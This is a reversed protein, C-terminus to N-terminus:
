PNFPVITLTGLGNQMTVSATMNFLPFAGSVNGGRTYSAGVTYIGTAPVTWVWQRAIMTQRNTTISVQSEGALPILATIAVVPSTGQVAIGFNEIGCAASSNGGFVGSVSILVRQGATFSLSPIALTGTAAGPFTGNTTPLFRVTTGPTTGNPTADLVASIIGSTQAVTGLATPGTAGTSGQPGQPGTPGAPGPVTSDAGAPGTPGAPGTAGAPGAPGVAGNTGNAGAPGAPGIAGQPGQPGTPGTAGAPGAPGPVTSDAGAPGTPGAPGVAGDAGNTGNAGAPGAPGTPGTPGTAGTAGQVGTTILAAAFSATAHNTGGNHEYGAVEVYDGVELHLLWSGNVTTGILDEPSTPVMMSEGGSVPSGNKHVRVGALNLLGPAFTLSANITYQGATSATFRTPAAGSFLPAGGMNFDAADFAMVTWISDPVDTGAVDLVRAALEPGPTGPVGQPGTAGTPGAPGIPGTPGTPGAPGTAGDAGNTGNTGAAGTAGAPGQPGTTGDAGAPGTAGASGTAGTAGAPGAPGTAGTAGTPGTPGAPGTPGSGPLLIAGAPMGQGPVTYTLQTYYINGANNNTAVSGAVITNFGTDALLIDGSTSDLVGPQNGSRVQSNGISFTSTGGLAVQGFVDASTLYCATNGSLDLAPTVPSTPWFTGSRGQLTGSSAVVPTGTGGGVSRFNVNDFTVGSGAGTNSMVLSRGTGAAYAVNDSLYLQQFSSGSFLIADGASNIDIAQVSVVGGSSFSVSGNVQTSFSKGAVAGQLHVGGALTLNETYTGPRVLIVTPNAPGYGAAV